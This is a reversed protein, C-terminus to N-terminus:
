KKIPKALKVTMTFTFLNDNAGDGSRMKSVVIDKKDNTFVKSASLRDKLKQIMLVNTNLSLSYGKLEIWEINESVAATTKTTPKKGLAFDLFAGSAAPKTKGSAPNDTGPASAPAIRVFWMNDPLIRQLENLIVFWDGRDALMGAALKYKDEEERLQNREDRINALKTNTKQLMTTATNVMNESRERNREVAGLFVSLCVILSAASALFYPTKRRLEHQKRVSPPVLTIEIPCETVRRLGLGIVESFMHAVEALREKDIHPALSIVQFPNFYEVPIKLKESFFRPTFAMVSSGGALYLKSPKAGQRQSRYVNISRNIEGHLRTMVNRVIKSVTAAVESDPEEYAGGLAVFGHKKKLEEADEFPIGFEKSIQQTVTFGAIPISRVFFKGSDIFILSSCKGGINLIIACDDEGIGNARAANYVVTPAVDVLVTEKGLEEIASTLGNVIDQKVVVFMTEIGSESGIDGILQYDWIVEDIPFPVNQKAEFEVVQRIRSEDGGIPPLNVFRIFADQGSFSFYVTKEDFGNEAVVSHLAERLAESYEDAQLEGAFENYAFKELVLGGTPPFSFSALKL